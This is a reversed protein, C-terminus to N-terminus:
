GWGSPCPIGAQFDYCFLELAKTNIQKKGNHIKTYTALRNNLQKYVGQPTLGVRKAFEAVSIYENKVM